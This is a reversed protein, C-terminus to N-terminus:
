APLAVAVREHNVATFKQVIVKEFHGMLMSELVTRFLKNEKNEILIHIALNEDERGIHNFPLDQDDGSFRLWSYTKKGSTRNSMFLHNTTGVNTSHYLVIRYFTLAQKTSPNM